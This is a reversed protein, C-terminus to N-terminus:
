RWRTAGAVRREDPVVDPARGVGRGRAGAGAPVRDAAVRHRRRLDAVPHRVRAGARRGRRGAGPRGRDRGQAGARPLARARAARLRASSRPLPGRVDRGLRLAASHRCGPRRWRRVVPPAPSAGGGEERPERLLPGPVGAHRASRARACVRASPAARHAGTGPSPRGAWRGGTARRAPAAAPLRGRARGRSEADLPSRDGDPVDTTPQRLRGEEAAETSGSATAARAPIPRTAARAGGVGAPRGGKVVGVHELDEWAFRHLWHHGRLRGLRPRRRLELTM